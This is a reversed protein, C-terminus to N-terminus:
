LQVMKGILGAAEALLESVYEAKNQVIHPKINELKQKTFKVTEQKAKEVYDERFANPHVGENEARHLMEFCM